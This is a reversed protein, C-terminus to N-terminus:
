KQIDGLYYMISTHHKNMLRGIKSYNWGRDKLFRSMEKRADVVNNGRRRSIIDIESVNYKEAFMELVEEGTM